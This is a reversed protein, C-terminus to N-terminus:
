RSEVIAIRYYRKSTSRTSDFTSMKGGVGIFPTGLPTWKGPLLDVAYELQYQTNPLTDFVLEVATYIEVRLPEYEVVFGQLTDTRPRDNWRGADLSFYHLADEVGANNPEGSAWNPFNFPEGTIWQWNGDPEVSEAPQYGGIWYEHQFTDFVYPFNQGIFNNEAQSTITALHGRLGNFVMGTALDRAETWTTIREVVSYYHNNAPNLVEASALSTAITTM